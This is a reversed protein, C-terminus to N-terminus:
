QAALQALIQTLLAMLKPVILKGAENVEEHTPEADTEVDDIAVNTITSIGLVEMGAHHAVLAEPVTSMGVADAGWNRVMRVEAATEFNPGALIIYVGSRLTIDNAAAVEKALRRLAPTYVRNAPPFRTGFADLNPGRLPNAGAMGLLNIHDEILMLDGANFEPNLGGAANTVILTGIGMRQMVRVPLTTQQMSYGEYYHFRGQMVCVQAGALTGMVLRGAHGAVTSVPFHPIEDYPIIVADEIQDALPSLGSGLILGIRPQQATRNLIAQAAEDYDALTFSDM